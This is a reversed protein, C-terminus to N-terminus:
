VGVVFVPGAEYRVVDTLVTNEEPRPQVRSRHANDSFAGHKDPVHRRSHRSM